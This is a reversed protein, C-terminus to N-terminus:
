CSAPSLKGMLGVSVAGRECGVDCGWARLGRRLGVDCGVSVAGRECGVDCGWTAAGRRLGVSAGVAAAGRWSTTPIIQIMVLGQKRYKRRRKRTSPNPMDDQRLYAHM